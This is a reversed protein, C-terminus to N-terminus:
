PADPKDKYKVMNQNINNGVMYPAGFPQWGIDILRNMANQLNISQHGIPELLVPDNMPPYISIVNVKIIKDM